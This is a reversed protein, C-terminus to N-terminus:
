DKVKKKRVKESFKLCEKAAARFVVISPMERSKFGFAKCAYPRNNEWTLKFFVCKHCDIPM